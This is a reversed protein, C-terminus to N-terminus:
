SPTKYEPNDYFSVPSLGADDSAMVDQCSVDPSRISGVLGEGASFAGGLFPVLIYGANLDENCSHFGWVLTLRITPM